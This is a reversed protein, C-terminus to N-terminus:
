TSVKLTAHFNTYFTDILLIFVIQLYKAFNTITLM